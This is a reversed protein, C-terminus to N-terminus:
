NKHKQPAIGDVSDNFFSVGGDPHAMSQMFTIMKPINKNLLSIFNSSIVSPYANCINLIDLMDVLILSHYMPSLECYSGDGLIQESIESDLSNQALEIWSRKNFIIGAFLIAKLNVFYHNALLHKEFIIPYIVQKSLFAKLFKKMWNSDM